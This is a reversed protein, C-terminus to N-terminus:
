DPAVCVLLTQLAASLLTLGVFIWYRLLYRKFETWLSGQGVGRPMVQGVIRLTMRLSECAAMLLTWLTLLTPPLVMWVMQWLGDASFVYAESFGVGVGYLLPIAFVAPAGVASLGVAMLILLLLGPWLCAHAFVTLVGSTASSSSPYILWLAPISRLTDAGHRFAPCGIGVGMLFLM